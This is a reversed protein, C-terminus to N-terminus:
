GLLRVGLLNWYHMLVVLTVALLTYTSYAIRRGLAWSGHRWVPVLGATMCATVLAFGMGALISVWGMGTPYHAYLVSTISSGPGTYVAVFAVLFVLFLPIAAVTAWRSLREGMSERLREHRYLWLAMLRSIMAFFFLGLILFTFGGREFYGVREFNNSSFHALVPRGDSDRSFAIRMGTDPDVFRDDGIPVFRYDVGFRPFSLYGQDNASVNLDGFLTIVKEVTTYGRRDMRYRGEYERLDVKAEAVPTETRGPYFQNVIRRPLSLALGMGGPTNTSVFIGLDLEPVLVMYSFFGFMGGTHELTRYGRLDSVWLGHGSASVFSHNAIAPAHMYALTEPALVGGGDELHARMFRTMEHATVLLGGAPATGGHMWAWGPAQYQGGTWTYSHALDPEGDPTTADRFGSRTMGLPELVHAQLYDTYPMGSVREVILGAVATGYNSYVVRVGPARVQAPQYRRVWEELTRDSAEDVAYFHGLYSDEFGASHTLLNRVRVTGHPLDFDIDPLYTTFDADLDVRDQEVLQMLAMANFVKAISGARFLSVHTDAPVRGPERAYGYGKELAIEGGQVISVVVGAIRHDEMATTVVGDVFAEMLERDITQSQADSHTVADQAMSVSFSLTMLIISLTSITINKM